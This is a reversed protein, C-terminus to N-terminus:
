TKGQRKDNFNRVIRAVFRKNDDLTIEVIFAFSNLTGYSTIKDM